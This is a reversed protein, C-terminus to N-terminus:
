LWRDVEEMVARAAWHEPAEIKLRETRTSPNAIIAALLRVRDRRVKATVRNRSERDHRVADNALEALGQALEPESSSLFMEGDRLVDKGAVTYRDPGINALREADKTMQETPTVWELDPEYEHDTPSGDGHDFDPMGCALCPRFDSAYSTM